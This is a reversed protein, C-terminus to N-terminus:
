LLGPSSKYSGLLASVDVDRVTVGGMKAVQRSTSPYHLSLSANPTSTPLTSTSSDSLIELCVCRQAPKTQTGNAQGNQTLRVRLLIM